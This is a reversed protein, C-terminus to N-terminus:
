EISKTVKAWRRRQAAAIKTRSAANMKRRKRTPKTYTGAFAALAADISVLQSHLQDKEKKLEKIFGSINM